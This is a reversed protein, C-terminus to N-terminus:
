SSNHLEELSIRLATAHFRLFRRLKSKRNGLQHTGTPVDEGDRFVLLNESCLQAGWIRKFGPPQVNTIDRTELDVYAVNVLMLLVFLRKNDKSFFLPRLDDYVGRKMVRCLCTWSTAVGYEKMVWVYSSGYCNLIVCLCGDSAGIHAHRYDYLSEVYTDPLPRHTAHRIYFPVDHDGRKWSDCKLSYVMVLSKFSGTEDFDDSESLFIKVCKYDESLHDYGIFCPYKMYIATGTEDFNDTGMLMLKKSIGNGTGTDTDTESGTGSETCGLDYGFGLYYHGKSRFTSIQPLYPLTKYSQTTPNYLFTTFPYIHM